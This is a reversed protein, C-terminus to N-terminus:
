EILNAALHTHLALVSIPLIVNETDPLFFLFSKRKQNQLFHINFDLRDRGPQNVTECRSIEVSVSRINQPHIRVVM